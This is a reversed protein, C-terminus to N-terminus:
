FESNLIIFSSLSTLTTEPRVLHLPTIGVNHAGLIDEEHSDGIHAVRTPPLDLRRLAEQFIRPDPKRHGVRASALIFEFRPTLGLRDLLIYLRQDWNSVVALRIGARELADLAPIVDDYLRWVEPHAFREFLDEFYADFRPGFTELHGLSAFVWQVAERWWTREAEESTPCGLNDPFTPRKTRWFERFAREIADPAADVGHRRAVDAYVHGVSPEVDILTQGVDLLVGDFRPAM